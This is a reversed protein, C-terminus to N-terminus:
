RKHKTNTSFIFLIARTPNELVPFRLLLV